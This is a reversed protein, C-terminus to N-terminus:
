KRSCSAAALVRKCCPKSIPRALSTMLRRARRLRRRRPKRTPCQSTHLPIDDYPASQAQPAPEPAPAPEAVAAPQTAAQAAPAQVPAAGGGAQEYAFPVAFGAAKRLAETLAGEVDPKQVANFAFASEAPFTVKLAGAEADFRAKTNMFLVGYAQKERKVTALASQWIRQLAAPNALADLGGAPQSAPSAAQPM